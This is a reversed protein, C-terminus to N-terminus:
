IGGLLPVKEARSSQKKLLAPNYQLIISFSKSTLRNSQRSILFAQCHATKQESYNDYGNCHTPLRAQLFRHKEHLKHFSFM